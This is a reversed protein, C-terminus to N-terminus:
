DQGSLGNAWPGVEVIPLAYFADVYDVMASPFEAAVTDLWNNLDALGRSSFLMTDFEKEISVHNESAFSVMERDLLMANCYPLYTSICEIDDSDSPKAKRKSSRTKCAMNARLVANIKVIPANALHLSFLFKRLREIRDAVVEDDIRMLLELCIEVTDNSAREQDGADFSQTYDHVCGLIGWAYGRTERKVLDTFDNDLYDQNEYVECLAAHGCAKNSRLGNLEDTTAPFQFDIVLDDGWQDSGSAFAEKQDLDQMDGVGLYGELARMFQIREIDLKSKLKVGCSLPLAIKRLADNGRYVVSERQHVPSIPCVIQRRWVMERLRDHLLCWEPTGNLVHGYVWQDLYLVRKPLLPLTM